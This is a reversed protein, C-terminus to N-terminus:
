AAGSIAVAAWNATERVRADLSSLAEQVPEFLSTERRSGIVFLACTRLWQDDGRLIERLSDDFGVFTIGFRQEAFRMREEDGSDDVLPMVLARHEPTLANEVFELASGRARRDESTLGRYAALIEEAPYLLGLRRFVRAVAQDVRENLARCFLREASGRGGIPCARSHVYAFMAARADLELDETIRERPFTVPAGAARIRNLAKLVRYWLRVDGTERCRILANVAEQTAIEALVPPIGHRIEPAVTSDSLYDGLTGVVRDGWAALGARAADRTARVKLAELLPPIHNRRQAAGASRLAARRVDLDEDEIMTSLLDHLMSPPPRHGLAAAIAARDEPKGAKLLKEIRIRIRYEDKPPTFEALIQLAAARMRVDDSELFEEVAEFPQQGGLLSHARLAAVRVPPEPDDLLEKVRDRHSTLFRSGTVELARVRIAAREHALLRELRAELIDPANEELMQIGHLVVREARNDLLLVIERLASAERLTMSLSTSGLKMRKLNRGLEAVYGRRVQFWAAIWVLVLAGSLIMVNAGSVATVLGLLLILVGALGDAVRELGASIFARARRRLGPELPFYFMESASRNLTNRMVQDWLRASVVTAFGPVFGHAVALLGLGSPLVAASWGAGLVQLAWRTMFVQVLLSALNVVTYFWGLFTALGARSDYRQQLDLKFAFELLGSVVVSCLAALALWRLYPIRFPRSGAGEGEGETEDAVAAVARRRSAALTGWGLLATLVAGAVLVGSLGFTRALPGALLGGVLGGVVGGTGILGFIRRAERPNSVATTFIWFQAVLILGYLNVWLYFAVPMWELGLRLLWAFGALLVATVLSGVALNATASRDGTRATFLASAVVSLVGVGMFVWPLLTAPLSSLFLADRATKVLTYSSTLAFLLGGLLLARRLEDDELQLTRALRQLM